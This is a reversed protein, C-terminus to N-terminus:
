KEPGLANTQSYFLPIIHTVPFVFCIGLITDPFFNQLLMINKLNDCLLTLYWLDLTEQRQNNTAEAFFAVRVCAAYFIADSEKVLSFLSGTM